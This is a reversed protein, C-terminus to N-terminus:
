LRDRNENLENQLIMEALVLDEPTTIKINRYTGLVVKVKFGLRELLMADDTGYFGDECAKEYASRILPYRFTQPTQVTWLGHRDLTQAVFGDESVQKVTDKVPVAVVAAGYKRAEQISEAVMEETIFIRVGDHIVVIETESDLNQLGQYVSDQRTMGGPVISQVKKFHYKHVLDSWCKEVDEPRTVLTVHSLCHFSEFRALTHALIPLSALPLFQKPIDGAGMRKGSGAAVVLAAVRPMRYRNDTTQQERVM